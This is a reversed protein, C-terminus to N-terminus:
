VSWIKYLIKYMSSVYLLLSICRLLNKFAKKFKFLILNVFIRQFYDIFNKIIHLTLYRFNTNKKLYIYSSIKHILSLKTNTFLNKKSSANELHILKAAPVEMIYKGKQLSRDCLDCDEYYMFFNTDFGGLINFFDRKMLYCCGMLFECCTEDFPINNSKSSVKHGKLQNIYSKSGNTRRNMNKDYLSPGLIGIKDPDKLFSKFLNNIADEDLIIDPNIILIFSTIASNVALNNAKGYGLNKSSKILKINNYKRVILDLEHSNSNDVIIVPFKKLVELNKLILKESRYTVLILTIDKYIDM